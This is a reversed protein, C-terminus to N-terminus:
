YVPFHQPGTRSSASLEPAAREDDRIGATKQNMRTSRQRERPSPRYVGVGESKHLTQNLMDEGRVASAFYEDRISQKYVDGYRKCFSHGSRPRPSKRDKYVLIDLPPYSIRLAIPAPNARPQTLKASQCTEAHVKYAVCPDPNFTSHDSRDPFSLSPM